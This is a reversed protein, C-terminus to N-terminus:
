GGSCLAPLQQVSGAARKGVPGITVEPERKGVAGSPRTRDISSKATGIEGPEPEQVPGYAACGGGNDGPRGVGSLDRRCVNRNV